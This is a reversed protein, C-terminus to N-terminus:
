LASELWRIAPSLALFLLQEVHPQQRQFRYELYAKVVYTRSTYNMVTASRGASPIQLLTKELSQQLYPSWAPHDVKSHDFLALWPQNPKWYAIVESLQHCYFDIHSPHSLSNLVRFHLIHDTILWDVKLVQPPTLTGTAM